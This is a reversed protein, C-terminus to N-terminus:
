QAPVIHWVGGVGDGNADGPSADGSYMYLPKGDLTVQVLGDDRTITAVEGPVGEGGSAEGATPLPPWTTACDATCSSTGGTDNDFTYVTYGDFTTVISGHTPHETVVLTTFDGEGGPTEGAATTAEPTTDSPETTTDASETPTGGDGNTDEDDDDCAVMGVALMGALITVGLM